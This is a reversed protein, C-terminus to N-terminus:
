CKRWAAPWLLHDGDAPFDVRDIEGTGRIVQGYSSWKWAEPSGVLGAEVPNRHIYETKDWFNRVRRIIVDFYREQWLRGRAGRLRAIEYGTQSKWDRMIRILGHNQPSILLHVHTPMVVYAFLLFDGRSRHRGLTALLLDREAAELPAVGRALNTTVFFIRDRDEIRRLRTM